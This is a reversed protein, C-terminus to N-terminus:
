GGDRLFVNVGELGDQCLAGGEELTRLSWLVLLTGATGLGVVWLVVPWTLAIYPCAVVALDHQDVLLVTADNTLECPTGM